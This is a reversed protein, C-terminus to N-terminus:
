APCETAVVCGCVTKMPNIQGPRRDLQRHHLKRHSASDFMGCFTLDNGEFSDHSTIGFNFTVDCEDIHMDLHRPHLTQALVLENTVCAHNLGGLGASTMLRATSFSSATIIM